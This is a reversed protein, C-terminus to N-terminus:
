VGDLLSLAAISGRADETWSHTYCCGGYYLVTFGIDEVYIYLNISRGSWVLGSYFIEEM